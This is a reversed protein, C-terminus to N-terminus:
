PRISRFTLNIRADTVRKSKAIQHLWHHQIDGGMILLSGHTLWIGNKEGEGTKKPKFDFRRTAGLSISAITPNQGLEAEDDAHWGMSDEGGRYLNCLVSNFKQGSAESVRTALEELAGSWPRAQFSLGSYRYCVGAEGYFTTLRPQMVQRGFMRIAQQGWDLQSSFAGLLADAKSASLFEPVLKAWGAPPFAISDM